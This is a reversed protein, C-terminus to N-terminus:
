KFIKLIDGSKHQIFNAVWGKVTLRYDAPLVADFEVRVTPVSLNGVNLSGTSNIKDDSALSPNLTYLRFGFQARPHHLEKFDTLVTDGDTVRLYDQGNASFSIRDIVQFEFGSHLWPTTVDAKRRAMIMFYQVPSRINELKMDFQQAGGAFPLDLFQRELDVFKYVLGDRSTAAAMTSSRDQPTKHLYLFNIKQSVISAVPDAGVHDSQVLSSLPKFYVDYTLEHSLANINVGYHWDVAHFVPLCISTKFQATANATREAASLLGGAQEAQTELEEQSAEAYLREVIDEGTLTQIHNGSYQIDIHDICYAGLWDVWRTFTPNGGGPTVASWTIDLRARFALDAIKTLRYMSQGGVDGTVMPVIDRRDQVHNNVTGWADPAFPDNVTSHLLPDHVGTNAKLFDRNAM